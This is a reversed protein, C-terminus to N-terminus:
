EHRAKLSEIYDRRRDESESHCPSGYSLSGLRTIAHTAVIGPTYRQPGPKVERERENAPRTLDFTEKAM